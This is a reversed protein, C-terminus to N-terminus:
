RSETNEVKGIVYTKRTPNVNRLLQYPCNTKPYQYLKNFVVQSNQLALHQQASM